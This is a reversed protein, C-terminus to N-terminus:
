DEFFMWVTPVASGLGIAVLAVILYTRDGQGFGGMFFFGSMGLVAVLPIILGSAFTNNPKGVPAPVQPLELRPTSLGVRLRPPRNFVIRGPAAHSQTREAVTTVM